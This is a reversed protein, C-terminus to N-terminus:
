QIGVAFLSVMLRVTTRNAYYRELMAWVFHSSCFTVGETLADVYQSRYLIRLWLVPLICAIAILLKLNM